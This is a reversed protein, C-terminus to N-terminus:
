DQAAPWARLSLYRSLFLRFDQSQISLIEWGQYLVFSSRISPSLHHGLSLSGLRDRLLDDPRRYKRLVEVVARGEEIYPGSLILRDEQLFSDLHQGEWVPPGPHKKVGPLEWVLLEFLLWGWQGSVNGGSRLVSFGERDLLSRISAQAKQLQPYIIDEVLDPPRFEVVIIMTKRAQLARVLEGDKLPEAPAPFFFREHPAVMFQRAAGIFQAFRDLTLAAAVNRRPDVPDVVVLPQTHIASGHNELDIVLGPRWSASAELVAEFSGYKLVLLETLYGSFGGTRLESGYVGIGKMFAKLLLVQDELGRIRGAVYRTHFPTRDVASRLHSPDSISFCPVIDLDFGGLSAHVYPHEAYREEHELVLQRGIAMAEELERHEPVCLFIDIDHDGALWTGRAASGGLVVQCPLGQSRALEGARALLEGVFREM